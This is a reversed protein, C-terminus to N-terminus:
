RRRGGMKQSDRVSPSSLWAREREDMAPSYLLRVHRVLDQEVLEVQGQGGRGVTGLGGPFGHATDEVPPGHPGGHKPGDPSDKGAVRDQPRHAQRKDRSM